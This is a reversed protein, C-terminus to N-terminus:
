KWRQVKRADSHPFAPSGKVAPHNLRALNRRREETWADLYIPEQERVRAKAKDERSFKLLAWVIFGFLLALSVGGILQFTMM